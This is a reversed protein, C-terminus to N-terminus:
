NKIIRHFSTTENSVIELIYLGSNYKSIDMSEVDNEEVSIKKGDMSYIILKSIPLTSEFNIVEHSPNPYVKIKNKSAYDQISLRNNVEQVAALADLKGSGWTKNPVNGTFSDQRATQSLIDKVEQNTLNPDMELMLAIVGCALPAAASVATQVGYLGNGGQVMNFDFNSYWTNPSYPAFIVEGPSAFDVGQRGDQTPGESSGVWIEGLNGEGAPRSRPIGNIDTWTNNSVYDTPVIVQQTSAFDNISTGTVAFTQFGNASYHTAPNLTAHFSGDTVTAGNLIM